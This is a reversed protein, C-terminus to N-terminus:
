CLGPETELAAHAAVDVASRTPLSSIWSRDHMPDDSPKSVRQKLLNVKWHLQPTTLLGFNKSRGRLCAIGSVAAGVLEPASPRTDHALWVEGGGAHHM